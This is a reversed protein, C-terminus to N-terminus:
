QSPQGYQDNGETQAYAGQGEVQQADKGKKLKGKFPKVTATQTEIGAESGQVDVATVSTELATKVAKRNFFEDLVKDLIDNRSIKASNGSAVLSQQEIEALKELKNIHSEKIHVNTTKTQAKDWKFISPTM